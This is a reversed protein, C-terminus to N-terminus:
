ELMYLTAHNITILNLKKFLTISVVNTCSGNDIIMSYLKNKIDCRTHFIIEKNRLMKKVLKFM